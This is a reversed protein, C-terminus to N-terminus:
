FTENALEASLLLMAGVGYTANNTKPWIAYLWQPFPNTGLSVAELSYGVSRKKMRSTIAIYSEKAVARHAPPLIGLRAGKALAYAILATGSSEEYGAGPSTVVTDWYGSPLRQALAANAMSTLQAALPAYAASTSPTQELVEVLFAMAWGNGRLWPVNNPPLLDAGSTDYAHYYLGTSPQELLQRYLAPQDLALSVLTPDNFADGYQYTVLVWMMLSDIWISDPYFLSELSTGLHNLTGAANRPTTRVYDMADHAQALYTADAYETYLRLATLAPATRDANDITPLGVQAYNAHYARVYSLHNNRHAPDAAALDMLGYLFIAPGWNWSLSTASNDAVFQRVMRNAVEVSGSLDNSFDATKHFSKLLCRGAVELRHAGQHPVAVFGLWRRAYVDREFRVPVVIGDLTVTTSHLFICKSVVIPLRNGVTIGEDVPSILEATWGTAPATCVLAAILARLSWSRLM